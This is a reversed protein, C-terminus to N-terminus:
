GGAAQRVTEAFLASWEARQLAVALQRAPDGAPKGDAAEALDVLADPDWGGAFRKAEVATSAAVIPKALAAARAHAPHGRCKAYWYKSNWFDGERRHMVAHWYSGTPNHIEQSLRHSEDLWDHWLWLGALVAAAADRRAPPKLLLDAPDLDSLLRKGEADGGGRVVLRGYADGGGATLAPVAAPTLLALTEADAPPLDPM